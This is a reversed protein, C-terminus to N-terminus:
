SRIGFGNSSLMILCMARIQSNPLVRSESYEAWAEIDERHAEVFQQQLDIEVALIELDFNTEAKCDWNAVALSIERDRFMSVSADDPAGIYTLLLAPTKSADRKSIRHIALTFIARNDFLRWGLSWIGVGSFQFRDSTM